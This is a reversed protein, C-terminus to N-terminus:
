KDRIVIRVMKTLEHQQTSHEFLARVLMRHVVAIPLGVVNSYSGEIREVFRGAIGQIAYGGAKDMPEGTEVYERIEDPHMRAFWVRTAATEELLSDGGWRLCVATLVTHARGSLLGLMRRADSEDQPKGLVLGDVTVITDAALIVEGDACEAAAAKERALRRVHGEPEEGEHVREDIGAARVSFEFGAQELLEARRPSQSALILKLDRGNDGDLETGM